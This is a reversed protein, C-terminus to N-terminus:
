NSELLDIDTTENKVLTHEESNRPSILCDDCDPTQPEVGSTVLKNKEKHQRSLQSGNRTKILESNADMFSRLQTKTRLLAHELSTKEQILEENAKQEADLRHTLVDIAKDSVAIKFASYILLLVFVSNVVRSM